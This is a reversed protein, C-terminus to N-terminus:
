ADDEDDSDESVEVHEVAGEVLFECEAGLGEFIRYDEITCIRVRFIVLDGSLNAGNSVYRAMEEAIERETTWSTYGSDTMEYISHCYRAFEGIHGPRPPYVEGNALVDQVESSEAAVGRYLWTRGELSDLVSGESMEHSCDKGKNM